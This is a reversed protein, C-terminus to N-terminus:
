DQEKFNNNMWINNNNSVLIDYNIIDLNKPTIIAQITLILVKKIKGKITIIYRFWVCIDDKQTNFDKLKVVM